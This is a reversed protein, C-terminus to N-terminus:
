QLPTSSTFGSGLNGVISNNGYTLIRGGGVASTAGAVNSDLLTNNILAAANAGIAQVGASGNSAIVNNRLNLM